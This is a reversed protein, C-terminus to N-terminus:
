RKTTYITARGNDYIRDLAPTAVINSVVKQTDVAVFKIDYEEIYTNFDRVQILLNMNANLLQKMDEASGKEITEDEFAVSLVSFSVQTKEGEALDGLEYRLRLADILRNNLAGFIFWNPLEKLEIVALIGNKEDIIAVTTDNLM